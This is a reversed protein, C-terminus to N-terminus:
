GNGKEKKLFEKIAFHYVTQGKKIKKKYAAKLGDTNNIHQAYVVAEAFKSRKAKQAKSPKINTMDPYKSLVTKKGYRKVVIEKGITGRAGHLLLSHSANAMFFTNIVPESLLYLVFYQIIKRRDKTWGENM